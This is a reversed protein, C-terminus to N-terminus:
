VLPKSKPPAGLFSVLSRPIFFSGDFLSVDLIDLPERHNMSRMGVFALPDKQVRAIAKLAEEIRGYKVFETLQIRATRMRRAVPRM